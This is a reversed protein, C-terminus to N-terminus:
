EEVGVSGGIGCGLCTVYVETENFMSASAPRLRELSWQANSDCVISVRFSNSEDHRFYQRIYMASSFLRTPEIPLAFERIMDTNDQHVVFVDNIRGYYGSTTSVDFTIGTVARTGQATRPIAEHRFFNSPFASTFLANPEPYRDLLSRAHRMREQYREHREIREISDSLEHMYKIHRPM